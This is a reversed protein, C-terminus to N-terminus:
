DRTPFSLDCMGHQAPLFILFYFYFDVLGLFALVVNKWVIMWKVQYSSLKFRPGVVLTLEISSLSTNNGWLAMAYM